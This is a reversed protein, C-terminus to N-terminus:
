LSEDKIGNPLIKEVTLKLYTRGLKVCQYQICMYTYMHVCMHTRTSFGKRVRTCFVKGHKREVTSIINFFSKLHERMTM